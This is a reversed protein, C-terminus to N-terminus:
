NTEGWAAKKDLLGTDVTSCISQLANCAPTGVLADFSAPAPAPSSSATPRPTANTTPEGTPKSTQPGDSCNGFFHSEMADFEGGSVVLEGDMYVEYKGQGQNCCM